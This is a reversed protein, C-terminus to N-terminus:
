LRPPHADAEEPSGVNVGSVPVNSDAVEDDSGHKKAHAGVEVGVGEGAEVSSEPLATAEAVVFAWSPDAVRVVWWWGVGGQAEVVVVRYACDGGGPSCGSGPEVDSVNLHYIIKLDGEGGGCGGM